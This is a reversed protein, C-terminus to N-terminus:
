TVSTASFRIDIPKRAYFFDVTIRDFNRHVKPAALAKIDPGLGSNEPETFNITKTGDKCNFTFAIRGDYLFGYNVFSDILMRRQDLKKTNLKIFRHFWFIIQERSLTPKALAQQFLTTHQNIRRGTNDYIQNIVDIHSRSLNM